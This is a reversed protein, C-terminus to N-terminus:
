RVTKIPLVALAGILGLIAVAAFMPEYGGNVVIASALAPGVVGPLTAAINMVGLDTGYQEKDPLVQSMLAQDVAVFAGFGLGILMGSVLMAPVTPSVIPVVAAAAIVLAAVFVIPKRRGIRDSLPGAIAASLLITPLAALGLLPAVQIAQDLPLGIFDQLVYLGYTAPVANAGFVLFRGIFVWFFDPNRIPNVWFAKLFALASIPAHPEGRNDKDPVTVVFLLVVLILAGAFSTYGLAINGVLTSAVLSGAVSGVLGGLGALTSYRGRFQVPVRDPLIASLPGGVANFGFQVVVVAVTLWAISPALGATVLGTAGMLGGILIWPRRAGFPGRTRDSLVGVIPQALMAAFASVGSIVAVAQVKGDPAIQQAQVASMFGVFTFALNPVIAIFAIWGFLRRLSSPLTEKAQKGAAHGLAAEPTGLITETMTTAPVRDSDRPSGHPQM